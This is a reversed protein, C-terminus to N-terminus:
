SSAPMLSRDPSSHRAWSPSARRRRVPRDAGHQGRAGRVSVSLSLANGLQAVDYKAMFTASMARRRLWRRSPTRPSSSSTAPACRTRRPALALQHQGPARGAVTARWRSRSPRWRGASAGSWPSPRASRLGLSQGAPVDRTLRTAPSRLGARLDGSSSQVGARRRHGGTLSSADLRTLSTRLLWRPSCPSPAGDPLSSTACSASRTPSGRCGSSRDVLRAAPGPRRPM